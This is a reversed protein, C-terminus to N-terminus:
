TRTLEGEPYMNRKKLEKMKSHFKDWVQNIIKQPTMNGAGENLYKRWNIEDM